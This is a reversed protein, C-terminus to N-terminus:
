PQSPGVDIIAKATAFLVKRTLMVTSDYNLGMDISSMQTCQACDKLSVMGPSSMEEQRTGLNNLRPVLIVMQM